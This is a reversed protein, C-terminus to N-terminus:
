THKDPLTTSLRIINSPLNDALLIDPDEEQLEQIFGFWYIVIGPGYRNKYGGFQDKTNMRHTYEDGFSAKSELWNVVRDNIIVPVQLKVDPTKPYGKVRM